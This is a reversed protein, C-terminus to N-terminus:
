SIFSSSLKDYCINAKMSIDRQYGRKRRARRQHKCLKLTTLEEELSLFVYCGNQSSLFYLRQDKKVIRCFTSCPGFFDLNICAYQPFEHLGKRLM